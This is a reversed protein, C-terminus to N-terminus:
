IQAEPYQPIVMVKKNTVMCFSSIDINVGHLKLFFWFTNTSSTEESGVGQRYVICDHRRINPKSMNNINCVWTSRLNAWTLHSKQGLNIYGIFNKRVSLNRWKFSLNNSLNSFREQM